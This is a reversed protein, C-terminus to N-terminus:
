STTTKNHHRAQTHLFRATGQAQAPSLSCRSLPQLGPGVRGEAGRGQSTPAGPKLGSFGTDLKFKLPRPTLLTGPGLLPVAQRADGLSADGREWRNWGSHWSPGQTEHPVPLIMHGPCPARVSWAPSRSCGPWMCQPHCDTTGMVFGAQGSTPSPLLPSGIPRRAELLRHIFFSGPSHAGAQLCPGSNKWRQGGPPLRHHSPCPLPPGPMQIPRCTGPAHLVPVPPPDTMGPARLPSNWSEPRGPAGGAVMVLWHRM